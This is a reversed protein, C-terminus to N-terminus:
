GQVQDLSVWGKLQRRAFTALREFGAARVMALARAFDAGVDGPAHSDSGITVIEGGEERFWRLMQVSPGPEGGGKRRYSTNVEVGKGREAVTRLARRVRDEHPRLDLERLGFCRAAARRVYDAHGLVDYEGEAALRGLHDFYLDIGEDLTLGDFFDARFVPRSGAWHLSGLVVDYAHAALLPTVQARYLHPEGCEVGARITLQGFIERCHEIEEWYLEPRFYGRCADLPEFDVHDTIAIERMGLQLAARCTAEMAADSDCSFRTHTHYDAPYSM